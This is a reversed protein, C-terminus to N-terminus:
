KLYEPRHVTLWEFFPRMAPSAGALTGAPAKELLTAFAFRPSEYPWFGVVWSHMWQNRVGTQATGTKAAIPVDSMNLARATGLSSTVARRMGDRVVAFYTRPIGLDGSEVDRGFVLHPTLLRGDNAFAAIARAMQLPTVQMGYQGIATNYTDGVRWPDDSGFTDEKWQPTPIVGGVEGSLVFGTTTGLGFLRAYEDLRAIGLGSQSGFGGGVVYFYIDSSVALAEHMDVWGHAKWDNFVSPKDPNYPNPITITGTSEIKKDPSIVNERLAGVAIIPKIISGPTYAGAIARNLAPLRSSKHAARIVATDGNAFAANDYEPVSVMAIIEGTNVDIIVSAGGQFGYANAHKLLIGYLVSQLESDISLTLNDGSTPPIVIDERQVAGLADVETMKSGNNGSLIDDFVLESGSVGIYEERWWLGSADTKPYRVFGIVHALGPLKTYVRRAYPTADTDEPEAENWALELGTRDYMVGRPAFIISRTLRNDRSINAYIDGDSVQLQFARASFALVVLVFLAGVGLIAFRSVPREVRGEFQTTEHAPLNSSDLFIEDPAIDQMEQKKRRGFMVGVIVRSWRSQM